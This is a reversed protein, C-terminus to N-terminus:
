AIFNSQLFHEHVVKIVICTKLERINRVASVLSFSLLVPPRLKTHLKYQETQNSILGSIDTWVYWVHGLVLM